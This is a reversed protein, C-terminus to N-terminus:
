PLIPASASAIEDGDRVLLYQEESPLFLVLEAYVTIALLEYDGLDRVPAVEDLGLSPPPLLSVM